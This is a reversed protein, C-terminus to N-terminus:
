KILFYKENEDEDWASLIVRNDETLAFYEINFKNETDVYYQTNTNSIMAFSSSSTYPLGFFDEIQDMTYLTKKNGRHDTLTKMSFLNKVAKNIKKYETDNWEAKFKPEETVEQLGQFMPKLEFMKM